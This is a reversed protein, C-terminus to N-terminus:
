ILKSPILRSTFTLRPTRLAGKPCCAGHVRTFEDALSTIRVCTIKFVPQEAANPCKPLGLISIRVCAFPSAALLLSTPLGGTIKFCIFALKVLVLVVSVSSNYISPASSRKSFPRKTREDVPPVCTIVLVRVAASCSPASSGFSDAVQEIHMVSAATNATTGHPWKPNQSVYALRSRPNLEAHGM